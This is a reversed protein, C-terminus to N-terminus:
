ALKELATANEPGLVKKAYKYVATKAEKVKEDHYEIEVLISTFIDIYRLLAKTCDDFSALIIIAEKYCYLAEEWQALHTHAQGKRDWVNSLYKRPYKEHVVNAWGAYVAIFQNAYDIVEEYQALTYACTIAHYWTMAIKYAYPTHGKQKSASYLERSTHFAKLARKYQKLQLLSKGKIYWVCAVKPQLTKNIDLQDYVNIVQECTTVMLADDELHRQCAIKYDLIRIIQRKYTKSDLLYRALSKEFYIFASTYRKLLFLYHAEQFYVDAITYTLNKGDNIKEYLARSFRYANIASPYDALDGMCVGIKYWTQALEKQYKKKDLAEYIIRRTILSYLAEEITRSSLQRCAKDYLKEAASALKTSIEQCAKPANLSKYLWASNKFCIQQDQVKGIHGFCVGQNYSVEIHDVTPPLQKHDCLWIYYNYFSIAQEYEKQEQCIDAKKKLQHALLNITEQCKLPVVMQQFVEQSVPPNTSLQQILADTQERPKDFQKKKLMATAMTEFHPARNQQPMM